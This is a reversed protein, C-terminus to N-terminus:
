YDAILQEVLYEIDKRIAANKGYSNNVLVSFILLHNKKTVLYGSLCIVGTLSGTKAYIYGSDQKYYQGLTGSGGTPLIRKMRELGFENKMMNLLWVFDAPTFLNYRSLGSGDAWVPKQPLNKLDTKLLTDIIMTNNMLGLKENSVMMLTQEAFFNDSRYMMPRFLSDGPRSRILSSRGTLRAQHDPVLDKGITDKLLELASALGNTVFPIDQAKYKEKGQTVEFINESLKRQVSFSAAGTDSNFSVKWDIEPISYVSPSATFGNEETKQSEQIWRIANGYVPLPSREVMYDENYDDWSWGSGWAQDKWCSDNVLLKKKTTKLFDIVPQSRYDPHLLSPDGTPFLLINCDDEIYRIGPLSDGLYKMGAYLSFLKTNSAPVFYKGSQFEYIMKNSSGADYVAIGVHASELEPQNLLHDDVTKNISSTSSCAEMVMWYCMLGFFCTSSKRMDSEVLKM